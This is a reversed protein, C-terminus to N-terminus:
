SGQIIRVETPEGFGKVPIKAAKGRNRPAASPWLMKKMFRDKRMIKMASSAVMSDVSSVLRANIFVYDGRVLYTGLLILRASRQKAIEEIERSLSYEGYHEKVLMSDTKRIEVVPFGARQLEGMLQESLYRGLPSTRYLNNLDVFTAVGIVGEEAGVGQMNEMLQIAIDHIQANFLSAEDMPYFVEEQKVPPYPIHPRMDGRKDGIYRLAPDPQSAARTELRTKSSTMEAPRNIAQQQDIGNTDTQSSTCVGGHAPYQTCGITLGATAFYLALVQVVSVLRLRPKLLTRIM